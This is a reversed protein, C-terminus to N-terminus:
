AEGNPNKEISIHVYLDGAQPSHPGRVGRGRARVAQGDGVGPPLAIEVTTGDPHTLRVPVGDAAQRGTLLFACHLDDGERTFTAHPAVEVDVFREVGDDGAFRISAGHAIGAPLTVSAQRRGGDFAVEVRTGRVAEELTIRAAQRRADPPAARRGFLGAFAAALGAGARPAAGGADRGSPDDRDTSPMAFGIPPFRSQVARVRTADTREARVPLRM